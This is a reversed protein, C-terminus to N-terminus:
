PRYFATDIPAFDEYSKVVRSKGDENKTVATGSVAATVAVTKEEAKQVRATLDGIKGSMGNLKAELDAKFATLMEAIAEVSGGTSSQSADSNAVEAKAVVTGEDSESPVSETGTETNVATDETTQSGEGGDETAASVGVADSVPAGNTSADVAGTVVATTEIETNEVTM